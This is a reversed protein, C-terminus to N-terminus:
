MKPGYILDFIGARLDQFMGIAIPILIVKVCLDPIQRVVLNRIGVRPDQFLNLIVLGCVGM